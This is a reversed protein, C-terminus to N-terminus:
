DIFQLLEGESVEPIIETLFNLLQDRTYDKNEMGYDIINELLSYTWPHYEIANAFEKTLHEMLKGKNLM